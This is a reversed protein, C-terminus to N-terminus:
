ETTKSNQVTKKDVKQNQELSTPILLTGLFVCLIAWAVSAQIWIIAKDDNRTLGKYIGIGFPILAMTFMIWFIARM